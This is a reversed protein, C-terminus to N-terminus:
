VAEDDGAMLEDMSQTTLSIVATVASADTFDLEGIDCHVQVGLKDTLAKAIADQLTALAVTKIEDHPSFM